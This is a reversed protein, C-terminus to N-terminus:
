KRDEEPDTMVYHRQDLEKARRVAEEARALLDKRSTGPTYSAIGGRLPVKIVRDRHRFNKRTLIEQIREVVSMAHLATSGPLIIGFEDEKLRCKHDSARTAESIIEGVRKLVEDGIAYGLQDNIIGFHDIDLVVLTLPEEPRRAVKAIEAALAEQFYALNHLGTKDDHTAYYEQTDQVRRIQLVMLLGQALCAVRGWDQPIQDHLALLALLSGDIQLPIIAAYNPVPDSARSALYIKRNEETWRIAGRQELLATEAEPDMGHQYLFYPTHHRDDFGILSLRGLGGGFHDFLLRLQLQLDYKHAITRCLDHFFRLDEQRPIGGPFLELERM